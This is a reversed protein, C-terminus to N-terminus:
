NTTKPTVTGTLDIKNRAIFKDFETRSSEVLSLLKSGAPSNKENQLVKIAQVLANNCEQLLVNISKVKTKIGLDWKRKILIM